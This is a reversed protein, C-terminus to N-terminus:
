EGEGVEILNSRMTLTESGFIEGSCRSSYANNKGSATCYYLGPESVTLEAGRGVELGKTPDGKSVRFWVFNEDCAGLPLARLTVTGSANSEAEATLGLFYEEENWLTGYWQETRFKLAERLATEAEEFPKMLQWRLNNMEQATRDFSPLEIIGARMRQNESAILKMLDGRQWVAEPIGFISPSDYFYTEGFLTPDYFYKVGTEFDWAPGFVLTEGIEKYFYTSTKFFEWNHFFAYTLFQDALSQADLYDLYSKGHTNLGTESFLADELEQFYGAIYQVEEKSALDPSKISFKFGRATEFGCQTYSVREIVYGGSIDTLPSTGANACYTYQRIGSAILPDDPSDITVFQPEGKQITEKALDTIAFAGNIDMRETLLYLGRYEGNIFLDVPRTLNTLRDNVLRNYTEMAKQYVLGTEDLTKEYCLERMPILTWKKSFGANEILETKQALKLNYGNKTNVSETPTYSTNGHGKITELEGSYLINGDSEIMRIYGSEVNQKESHLAILGDVGRDLLIEMAPTSESRMVIISTQIFSNNEADYEYIRNEGSTLPYSFCKRPDYQKGSEPDYFAHVGTYCLPIEEPKFYSPLFLAYQTQIRFPSFEGLEYPVSISPKEISERIIQEAGSPDSILLAFILVGLLIFWQKMRKIM